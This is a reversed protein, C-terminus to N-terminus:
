RLEQLDEQHDGNMSSHLLSSSTDEMSGYLGGACSTKQFVRWFRINSDVGGAVSAVYGDYSSRLFPCALLPRARHGAMTYQLHLALTTAAPKRCSRFHRHHQSRPSSTRRFVRESQSLLDYPRFRISDRKPKRWVVLSYSPPTEQRTVVVTRPTTGTWGIGGGGGGPKGTNGDCVESDEDMSDDAFNYRLQPGRYRHVVTSPTEGQDSTGETMMESMTSLNASIGHATLIYGGDPSYQAQTTQAAINASWMLQPDTTLVNYVRLGSNGACGGILLEYPNHPHFSLAKITRQNDSSIVQVPSRPNQLSWLKVIGMDSGTAILSGNGNLAVSCLRDHQKLYDSVWKVRKLANGCSSPDDTPSFPSAERANPDDPDGCLSYSCRAHSFHFPAESTASLTRSIHSNGGFVMCPKTSRADVSLLEGGATAVVGLWPHTASTAVGSISSVSSMSLSLAKSARSLLLGKPLSPTSKSPFLHEGLGATLTEYPSPPMTFVNTRVLDGHETCQFLELGGGSLGLFCTEDNYRTVAVATPQRSSFNSPSGSEDNHDNGKMSDMDSVCTTASKQRPSAPHFFLLDQRLALAIRERGWSLTNIYFDDQFDYASLVCSPSSLRTPIWQSQAMSLLISPNLHHRCFLQNMHMSNTGCYNDGSRGSSHFM